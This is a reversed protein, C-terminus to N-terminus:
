IADFENSDRGPTLGARTAAPFCIQTKQFGAKKKAGQQGRGRQPVMGFSSQLGSGTPLQYKVPAPSASDDGVPESGLNSRSALALRFM